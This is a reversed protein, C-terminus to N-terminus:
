ENDFQQNQASVRQSRARTAYLKEYDCGPEEAPSPLVGELRHM